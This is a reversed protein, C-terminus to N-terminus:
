DKQVLDSNKATFYFKFVVYMIILLAAISTSIIAAISLYGRAEYISAGLYYGSAMFLAVKPISSIFSYFLFKMFPMRVVGAAFLIAGGAPQTKSFFILKISHRLFQTEFFEVRKRTVGIYKGWRRLVREESFRGLGYYIVDGVLDGLILIGATIYWTLVGISVLFGSLVAIIPGEIISIPFIVFYTYTELLALTATTSPDM